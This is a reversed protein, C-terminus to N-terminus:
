DLYLEPKIKSDPKFAKLLDEAKSTLACTKADVIQLELEAGLTLIGNNRFDTESTDREPSLRFQGFVTEMLRPFNSKNASQNVIKGKAPPVIRNSEGRQQAPPIHNSGLGM